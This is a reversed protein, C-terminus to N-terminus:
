WKAKGSAIDQIMRIALYLRPEISDILVYEADASHAGFGRLGFREIVPNKTELAAFAADTGGGEAEDSVELTKGIEQYVSQAHKSLARSADTPELPPRRREFTLDVKAKPDLQTKIKERLAKELKEYDIVKLVRVDATAIALAPITNRTSGSMATTWNMKIGNEPDQLDKTQLLQHALEILANTGREPASGAHSAKGHVKLIVAAIGATALSLRDSDSRAAEFSLTADHEKGLKVLLARSGPSSIEEDGNFLVTLTGYERYNLEKLIAVTHLVVALGQKDDAIGLGYARDGNIQFPQKALMGKQYVTDQHAILMIKKTGTGKFTARVIKGLRAPTDEMKYVDDGQPDIVEVEGGLAKLKDAVYAASKDLGEIDRSGTEISVIDKLTDLLPQKHRAALAKIQDTQAHAPLALSAALALPISFHFLKSFM